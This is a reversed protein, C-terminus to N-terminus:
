HVTADGARLENLKSRLTSMGGQLRVLRGKSARITDEIHHDIFSTMALVVSCGSACARFSAGKAQDSVFCKIDFFDGYEKRIFQEQSPIIGVICIKMKDSKKKVDRKTIVVDSASKGTDIGVPPEEPKTSTATSSPKEEPHKVALKSVDQAIDSIGQLLLDLHVNLGQSLTNRHQESNYFMNRTDVHTEQNHAQMALLFKLISDNKEDLTSIHQNIKTLTSLVQQGIEAVARKTQASEELIQKILAPDIGQQVPAAPQTTKTTAIRYNELVTEARKKDFVRMMGRGSKQSYLETVGNKALLKLCVEATHNFKKALESLRITEIVEQKKVM